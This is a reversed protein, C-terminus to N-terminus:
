TLCLGSYSAHVKTRSSANRAKHVEENLQSELKLKNTQFFFYLEINLNMQIHLELFWQRWSFSPQFFQSSSFLKPHEEYSM